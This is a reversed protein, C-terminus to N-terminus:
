TRRPASRRSSSRPTRTCRWSRGREWTRSRAPTSRTSMRARRGSPSVRMAMWRRALSSRPSREGVDVSAADPQRDGRERLKQWVRAWSVSKLEGAEVHGVETVFALSLLGHRVGDDGQAEQALEHNLCAAVVQCDDVSAIGTGGDLSKALGADAQSYVIRDPSNSFDVSRPTMESDGPLERTAGTSHCCDLVVAVSRTRKAISALLRNFEFDPLLQLQGPTADYDVPVLSERAFTGQPGTAVARGGHGSYYIFVRDDPKVDESALQALADRINALTAPKEAVKTEHKDGVHPSAIRTILEREIGAREILLRQVADIDNVCGHLPRSQYSDIGVLLAHFKPAAAMVVERAALDFTMPNYSRRASPIGEFGLQSEHVLYLLYKSARKMYEILSNVSEHVRHQTKSRLRDPAASAFRFRFVRVQQRCEEM